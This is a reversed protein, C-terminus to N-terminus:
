CCCYVTAISLLLNFCSRVIAVRFGEASERGWSLGKKMVNNHM